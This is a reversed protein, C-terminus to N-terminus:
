EHENLENLDPHEGLVEYVDKFHPVKPIIRDIKSKTSIVDVFEIEALVDIVEKLGYSPIDFYIDCVKRLVEYPIEGLGRIHIALSAAMGVVRLRDFEPADTRGLSTQIDFALEAVQKKQM